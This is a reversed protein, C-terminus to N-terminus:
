PIFSRPSSCDLNGPLRGAQQRHGLAGSMKEALILALHRRNTFLFFRLQIQELPKLNRFLRRRYEGVGLDRAGAVGDKVANM